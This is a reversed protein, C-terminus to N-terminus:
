LGEFDFDPTYTEKASTMDQLFGDFGLRAAENAASKYEFTTLRRNIEPYQAAHYMPTYQAMLSLLFKSKDYNDNLYNLVKISEGRHSPLVLHRVIVGRTMLGGPSYECGGRQSLMEELADSAYKQYDPALSYRGALEPTVYKFDPLYIDVYGELMKLTQVREYGSSNYVVPINLRGRCLELARIIEPIYPTGTVLNINHCGEDQLRLFIESLRGVTIAKGTCGSSIEGNQCFVCRMPCGSFFVAGSGKTGSIPPEEYYHPAARAARLEGAGCAGREEPRVAGCMRPCLCCKESM